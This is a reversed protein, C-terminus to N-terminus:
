RFKAPCPRVLSFVGGHELERLPARKREDGATRGSEALREAPNAWARRMETVARPPNRLAAGRRASAACQRRAARCRARASADRAFRGCRRGAPFASGAPYAAHQFQSATRQVANFATGRTAFFFAGGLSARSRTREDGPGAGDDRHGPGGGRLWKKVDGKHTIIKGIRMNM